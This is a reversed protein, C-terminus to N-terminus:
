RIEDASLIVDLAESKAETLSLAQSNEAPRFTVALEDDSLTLSIVTQGGHWEVQYGSNVGKVYADEGVHDAPPNFPHTPYGYIEQLRQWLREFVARRGPRTDLDVAYNRVVAILRDNDFKSEATFAFGM